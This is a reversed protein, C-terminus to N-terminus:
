KHKELRHWDHEYADIESGKFYFFFRKVSWHNAGLGQKEWSRNIGIVQIEAQRGTPYLATIYPKCRHNARYMVGWYFGKKDYVKGDPTPKAM